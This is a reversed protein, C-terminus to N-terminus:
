HVLSKIQAPLLSHCIFFSYIWLAFIGNTSHLNLVYYLRAACRVAWTPACCLSNKDNRQFKTTRSAHNHTLTKRTCATFQQKTNSNASKAHAVNDNDGGLNPECVSVSFSWLFFFESFKKDKDVRHSHSHTVKPREAERARGGEREKEATHM